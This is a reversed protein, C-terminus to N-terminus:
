DVIKGLTNKRVVGRDCVPHYLNINNIRIKIEVGCWEDASFEKEIEVQKDVNYEQDDVSLKTPIESSLVLKCLIKDVNLKLLSSKVKIKGINELNFSSKAGFPKKFITPTASTLLFNCYKYSLKSKLVLPHDFDEITIDKFYTADPPAIGLSQRTGRGRTGLGLDINDFKQEFLQTNNECELITYFLKCKVMSFYSTLINMDVIRRGIHTSADDGIKLYDGYFKGDSPITYYEGKFAFICIADNTDLKQERFDEIAKLFEIKSRFTAEYIINDQIIPKVGSNGYYFYIFKSM